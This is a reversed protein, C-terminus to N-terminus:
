KPYWKVNKWPLSPWRQSETRMIPKKWVVMSGGLSKKVLALKAGHQTESKVAGLTAASHGLVIDPATRTPAIREMPATGPRTYPTRGFGIENPVVRGARGFNIENAVVRRATAAEVSVAGRGVAPAGPGGGQAGVIIMTAINVVDAYGVGAAEGRSAAAPDLSYFLQRPTQGFVTEAFRDSLWMTLPSIHEGASQLEM